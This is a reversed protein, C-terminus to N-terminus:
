PEAPQRSAGLGALRHLVESPRGWEEIELDMYVM